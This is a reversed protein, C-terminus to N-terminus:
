PRAGVAQRRAKEALLSQLYAAQPNPPPPAPAGSGYGGIGTPITGLQPVDPLPQMLPKIFPALDVNNQAAYASKSQALGSFATQAETAYDHMAQVMAQRSQPSLKQGSVLDPAIQKLRLWPGQGEDLMKANFQRAVGGSFIQAANDKLEADSIGGPRTAAQVAGRYMETLKAAKDYQQSSTLEQMTSGVDKVTYNDDAVKQATGNADLSYFGPAGPIRFRQREQTPLQGIGGQPGMVSGAPVSGYAANASTHVQGDPGRQVFQNPSSPQDTFEMGPVFHARGDAGMYPKSPDTIPTAMRERLKMGLALGEDHTRPDALLSRVLQMEQSTPPLGTPVGHPAQAQPMPPAQMGMPAVGGAAPQGPSPPAAPPAGAQPPSNAPSPPQFPQSGMGMQSPDFSQSQGPPAMALSGGGPLAPGPPQGQPNGGGAMVGPPLQHAANIASALGQNAAPNGPVAAQPNGGFFQQHGITQSPGTAWAPTPRGLQAQLAPAYFNTAGGTPDAGAMEPAINALIAALKDPTQARAAPTLGEFQHPAELIDALSKGSTKARNMAVAAVAQQGAAPEGRAEGWVMQALKLQDPTPGTPTPSAQPPGGIQVPGTSAVAAPPGAQTGPDLGPAGQASPVTPLGADPTPQLASLLNNDQASRDRGFAAMADRDARGKGWQMIGDALLNAALATPTRISDQANSQLSRLADALYQSRQFAAGSSPGFRMSLALEQAPTPQAPAAVPM